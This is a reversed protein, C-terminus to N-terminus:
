RLEKEKLKIAAEMAQSIVIQKNEYDDDSPGKGECVTRANYNWEWNNFETILKGIEESYVLHSLGTNMVLDYGVKARQIDHALLLDVNNITDPKTQCTLHLESRLYRMTAINSNVTAFVEKQQRVFDKVSFQKYMLKNEQFTMYSSMAYTSVGILAIVLLLARTCKPLCQSSRNCTNQDQDVASNDNQNNTM